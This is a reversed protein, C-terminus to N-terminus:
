LNLLLILWRGAHLSNLIFKELSSKVMMKLGFLINKPQSEMKLTFVIYSDTFYSTNFLTLPFSFEFKSYPSFKYMLTEEVLGGKYILDTIKENFSPSKILYFYKKLCIMNKQGMLFPDQFNKQPLM